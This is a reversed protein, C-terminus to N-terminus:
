EDSGSCEVAEEGDEEEKGGGGEVGGEMEMEGRKVIRTTGSRSGAVGEM